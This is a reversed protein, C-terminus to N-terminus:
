GPRTGATIWRGLAVSLLPPKLARRSAAQGRLWRSRTVEADGGTLVARHSGFCWARQAPAVSGPCESWPLKFPGDRTSCPTSSLCVGSGLEGGTQEGLKYVGLMNQFFRARTADGWGGLAPPPLHGARPLFPSATGLTVAHAESSVSAHTPPSYLLCVGNKRM